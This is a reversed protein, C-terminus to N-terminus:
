LNDKDLNEKQEIKEELHGMEKNQFRYIVGSLITSVGGLMMGAGFIMHRFNSFDWYKQISKIGEKDSLELLDLYVNVKEWGPYHPDLLIYGGLFLGAGISYSILEKKKVM